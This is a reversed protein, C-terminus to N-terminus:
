RTRWLRITAISPQSYGPPDSVEGLPARSNITSTTLVGGVYPPPLDRLDLVCRFTTIGKEPFDSRIPLCDGAGTFSLSAVRGEAYFSFVRPDATVAICSRIEGVKNVKDNTVRGDTAGIAIAWMTHRDEAVFGGSLPTFGPLAPTCWNSKTTREYRLSRLVFVEERSETASPSSGAPERSACGFSVCSALVALWLVPRARVDRGSSRAQISRISM